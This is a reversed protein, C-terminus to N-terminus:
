KRGNALEGAIAFYAAGDIYNDDKYAEMSRAVKILACIMASQEPTVERELYASLLGSIRNFNITPTGYDDQRNTYTLAKAEDLIKGRNM